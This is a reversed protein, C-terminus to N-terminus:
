VILIILFSSIIVLYCCYYYYNTIHTPLYFHSFTKKTTTWIFYSVNSNVKSQTTHIDWNRWYYYDVNLLLKYSSCPMIIINGTAHCQMYMYLLELMIVDESTKKYKMRHLISLINHVDSIYMTWNFKARIDLMSDEKFVVPFRIFSPFQSPPPEVKTNVKYRPHFLLYDKFVPLTLTLPRSSRQLNESPAALPATLFSGM